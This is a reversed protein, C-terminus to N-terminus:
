ARRNFVWPREGEIIEDAHFDDHCYKCMLVCKNVESWFRKHSCKALYTVTNLKTEPNIHHFELSVHPTICEPIYCKNGLHEKADNVRKNYRRKQSAKKAESQM